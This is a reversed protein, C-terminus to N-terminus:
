KIKHPKKSTRQNGLQGMWQKAAHQKVQMYKHDKWIKKTHNVELKWTNYGSFIYPLFRIKSLKNLRTKHDLINDTRSIIGHASSFLRYEATKPHFTRFTDILDMQDLLDNWAVTEKNIKQHSKLNSSREM